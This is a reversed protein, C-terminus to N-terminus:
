PETIVGAEALPPQALALHELFSLAAALAYCTAGVLLVTQFGWLKAGCMAGVSGLVSAVGNTAWVWPALAANPGALRRLGSPFQTGMFFGLPILVAAGAITRALIPWPLTADFLRGLGHLPGFGLVLVVAALAGLAAGAALRGVPWSQTFLSGLGGGLLLAFLIVAFSLTPYGLYLILKQALCVEILMFGVGIGAFYLAKEAVWATPILGKSAPPAEPHRDESCEEVEPQAEVEGASEAPEATEPAVPAESDDAEAPPPDEAEGEPSEEPAEAAGEEETEESAEESGEAVAEDSAKRERVPPKPLRLDGRAFAHAVCTAAMICVLLAAGGGVFELFVDQV